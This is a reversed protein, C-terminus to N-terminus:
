SYFAGGREELLKPKTDLQLDAYMELLGREIEM